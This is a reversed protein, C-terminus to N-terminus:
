LVGESTLAGGLHISLLSCSPAPNCHSGQARQKAISHALSLLLAGAAGTHTASISGHCNQELLSTRLSLPTSILFLKRSSTLSPSLRLLQLSDSFTVLLPWPLAYSGRLSHAWARCGPQVARPQLSDRSNRTQGEVRGVTAFGQLQEKCGAVGPDTKM